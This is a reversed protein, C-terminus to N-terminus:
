DLLKLNIRCAMAAIGGGPPGAVPTGLMLWWFKAENYASADFYGRVASVMLPGMFRMVIEECPTPISPGVVACCTTLLASVMGCAQITRKVSGVM